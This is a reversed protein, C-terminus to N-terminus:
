KSFYPLLKIKQRQLGNGRRNVAPTFEIGRRKKLAKMAYFRGDKEVLYVEGFAGQGLSSIHNFDMPGIKKDKRDPEDFM